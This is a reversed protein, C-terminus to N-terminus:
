YVLVVNRVAPRFCGLMTDKLLAFLSLATKVLFLLRWASREPLVRKQVVDTYSVGSVCVEHFM